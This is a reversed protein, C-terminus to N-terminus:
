VCVDRISNMKSIETTYENFSLNTNMLENSKCTNIANRKYPVDM